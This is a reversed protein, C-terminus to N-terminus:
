HNIIAMVDEYVEEVTLVSWSDQLIPTFYIISKGDNQSTVLIIHDINISYKQGESTTVTIFKNM